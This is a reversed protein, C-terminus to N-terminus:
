DERILVFFLLDRRVSSKSLQARAVARFSYPIYDRTTHGVKRPNPPNDKLSSRLIPIVEHYEKLHPLPQRYVTYTHLIVPHFSVGNWSEGCPLPKIDWVDTDSDRVNKLGSDRLLTNISTTTSSRTLSHQMCNADIVSSECELKSVWVKEVEEKALPAAIIADRGVRQVQCDRLM